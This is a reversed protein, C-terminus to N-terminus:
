SKHDLAEVRFHSAVPAAPALQDDLVAPRRGRLSRRDPQIELRPQRLHWQPATLDGLAQSLTIWRLIYRSLKPNRGPADRLQPFLEVSRPFLKLSFSCLESTTVSLHEALRSGAAIQRRVRMAALWTAPRM